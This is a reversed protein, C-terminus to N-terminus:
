LFGCQNAKGEGTKSRRAWSPDSCLWAAGLGVGFLWGMVIERLCSDKERERM